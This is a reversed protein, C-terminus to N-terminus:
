KKAKKSTENEHNVTTQTTQQVTKTKLKTYGAKSDKVDNQKLVTKLDKSVFYIGKIDFNYTKDGKEDPNPNEVLVQYHAEIFDGDYGDITVPDPCTYVQSSKYEKETLGLEKASYEKMLARVDVCVEDETVAQTVTSETSQNEDKSEKSCAAFACMIMSLCLLAVIIKRM